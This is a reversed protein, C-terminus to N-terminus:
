EPAMLHSYHADVTKYFGTSDVLVKIYGNSDVRCITGGFGYFPSEVKFRVVQGEAFLHDAPVETIEMVGNHDARGMFRTMTRLNVPRPGSADHLVTSVGRIYYVKALRLVGTPVGAFVYRPFLPRRVTERKKQKGPLRIEVLRKPAFCEYGEELLNVEVAGERGPKTLVAYWDVPWAEHCCTGEPYRSAERDVVDGEGVTDGIKLSAPAKFETEMLM